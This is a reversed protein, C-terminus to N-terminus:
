DKKIKILGWAGKNIEDKYHYTVNYITKEVETSKSKKYIIREAKIDKRPWGKCSDTGDDCTGFGWALMTYDAQSDINANIDTINQVIERPYLFYRILGGGGVDMWPNIMPPYMIVANEPTNLKIFLMYDYFDGWGYRMKEDYTAFPHRIMYNSKELMWPLLTFVNNALISLTFVFVAIRLLIDLLVSKKLTELNLDNNEPMFIRRVLLDKNSLQINILFLFVSIFSTWFYLNPQLHLTSFVYNPYNQLELSMILLYSALLPLIILKNITFLVKYPSQIETEYKGLLPTFRTLIGSFVSLVLLLQFPLFLHHLSYGSYTFSELLSIFFTLTLLFPFIVYNIKFISRIKSKTLKILM